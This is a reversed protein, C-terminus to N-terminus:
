LLSFYPIQNHSFHQKDAHPTSVYGIVVRNGAVVNDDGNDRKLMQGANDSKRNGLIYAISSHATGPRGLPSIGEGRGRVFFGGCPSPM